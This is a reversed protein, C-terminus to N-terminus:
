ALGMLQALQRADLLAQAPPPDGGLFVPIRGQPGFRAVLESFLSRQERLSGLAGATVLAAVPGGGALPEPLAPPQTVDLVRFLRGGYRAALTREPSCSILIGGLRDGLADVWDPLQELTGPQLDTLELYFRFADSVEDRWVRGQESAAGVWRAQPVLVLPFDNAYYALRWERPLDQPYYSGGWAPFEWGRTGLHISPAEARDSHEPM